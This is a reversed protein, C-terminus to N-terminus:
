SWVASLLRRLPEVVAFGERTTSRKKRAQRILLLSISAILGGAITVEVVFLAMGASGLEDSYRLTQRLCIGVAFLMLVLVTMSAFFKNM